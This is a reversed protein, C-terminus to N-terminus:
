QKWDVELEWNARIVVPSEYYSVTEPQKNVTFDGSDWRGNGNQDTIMRLRYSGPQLGIINESLKQQLPRTLVVEDKDNVMQFLRPADDNVSINLLLSGRSRDGPINFKWRITDNVRQHWDAFAGPAIFLEYNGPTYEVDLSLQLKNEDWTEKTEVPISDRSLKLLSLDYKIVPAPFRLKIGAGHLLESGTVPSSSVPLSPIGEKKTRTESRSRQYRVTDIVETGNFWVAQLTDSPPPFLYQFCTDGAHNFVTIISDFNEYPFIANLYISPIAFVTQTKSIDSLISNKVAHKSPPQRFLRLNFQASDTLSLIISSFAVREEAQDFLYNGNKDALAFVRYTGPAVYTIRFEGQENCRAFYDPKTKLLLSDALDARYLIAITETGPKGTLADTVIGSVVLSDIHDGTSFIYRFDRLINGENNDAIANGFNISYTTNPRLEGRLEIQLSKRRQTILPSPDLPPSVVLNKNLDKLQVYENFTIVIDRSMFRTQGNPPEQSVVKPPDIDKQGGTPAVKNACSTVAVTGFLIFFIKLHRIL